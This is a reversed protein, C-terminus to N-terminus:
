RTRAKLDTAQSEGTTRPLRAFARPKTPFGTRLFEDSLETV